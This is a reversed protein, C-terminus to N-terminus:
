PTAAPAPRPALYRDFWAVTEEFINRVNAPSQALSHSEGWYRLLRATRGRRHLATFFREAEGLQGRKDYEGHIMLLPTEVREAYNIPSNREFLARDEEPPGGIRWSGLEVISANASKENEIGPYGRAGRDFEGYLTSVDTIGAMAVAARFRRTQTVLAYVAYGGFSQGFVGVRDPDAIGLEVLRDVAPLVGSPIDPYTENRAADRRLPMSPILVVYGRAAYLYLNYFGAMHPDLFYDGPGRARNGPYVWTVVPYRRGQRYGPPLIVHAQLAGGGAARYDITRIEGWDVDALHGSLAMLERAPGGGAPTERLFLGRRTAERWLLSTGDAALIEAGPALTVTRQPAGELSVLDFRGEASGVVIQGAAAAPDAPGAIWASEPLTVGPVPILARRDVDLSLLRGGAVTYFGGRSGRRLAEPVQAAAATLNVAGPGSGLLYWDARGALDLHAILRRGDLWFLPADHPFESGAARTGITAGAPGAPVISLNAASALFLSAAAAVAHARARLAVRRSDPSWSLLELPYRGAAPASAWRVAGGRGLDIFGLRKEVTWNEDHHPFREGQRPPIAGTTALVALRRADPAVSLTLASRFPYIPVEAVTEAARSEVDITRVLARRIREAERPRAEGSGVATVTPVRGERLAAVTEQAHRQPRSYEEILGSIEGEPLMAALLRRDDLWVFPANESGGCRSVGGRADRVDLGYMPSGYRTQTMVPAGGLRTLAGTAKDWVYLRVNDGGRPEAGEPRTSLMALRGGDPSWIACWFGAADLGGQTLNRREGTARSILWVDSRSPDTEYPARGFVEGPRAPRQVVAAAWAGDPSFAAGDIQTMEIVDDITLPRAQAAGALGPLSLIAAAATWGRWHRVLFM